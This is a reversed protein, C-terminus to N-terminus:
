HTDLGALGSCESSAGVAIARQRDKLHQGTQQGTTKPLLRASCLSPWPPKAHEEEVYTGADLNLMAIM